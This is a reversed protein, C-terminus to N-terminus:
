QKQDGLIEEGTERLESIEIHSYQQSTVTPDKHRLVRQASEHGAQMFYAQGVGRRAGHPKLHDGDEYLSTEESLDRLIRRGGETTLAPPSIEYNRLVELVDTEGLIGEIQDASYDLRQLGNRAARHLSPGHATPFVPWDPTPPALRRKHSRLWRAARDLLPVEERQQSKGLVTILGAEFDVDAWTLGNRRSDRPSRLLEGNRIGTLALVGIYARDRVAKDEDMWGNKLIDETKWDIYQLLSERTRESWFQQKGSGEANPLEDEAVAKRAYNTELLDRRVAWTHFGAVINYYTQASEASLQRENDPRAVENKLYSAYRALAHKNLESVTNIGAELMNDVFETLALTATHSYNGDGETKTKSALYHEIAVTLETEGRKLQGEVRPELRSISTDM